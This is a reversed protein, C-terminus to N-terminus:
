ANANEKYKKCSNLTIKAFIVTIYQTATLIVLSLVYYFNTKPLLMILLVGLIRGVNKYCETISITETKFEKAHPVNDLVTYLTTTTPNILFAGLFSNIVSLILITYTNLKWFLLGCLITLITTSALMYNIRNNPRMIKGIIISSIMAAVGVLFTNFGVLSESKVIEFLLVNLFFSFAGERIGKFFDMHIVFFWPKQTYINKFLEKFRTKQEMKPITELKLILYVVFGAILFCSGFVIYYGIFGDFAQILFGAFMPMVLSILGSFVGLFSMAVDRTDDNSYRILSDFYNIWYVGTAIGHVTAVISYVTDLRDMFIFTILYTMMSLIVGIILIVKNNLKRMLIATWTMSLGVFVFHVINYKLVITNPDDSVRMLLTNIFTMTIVTALLYAIHMGSFQLFEHNLKDAGMALFMRNKVRKLINVM